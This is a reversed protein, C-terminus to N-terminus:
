PTRSRRKGTFGMAERWAKWDFDRPDLGSDRWFMNASSNRRFRGEGKVINRVYSDWLELQADPDREIPDIAKHFAALNKRYNGKAGERRWTARFPNYASPAYPEPERPAPREPEPPPVRRPSPAVINRVAQALRKFSFRRAM